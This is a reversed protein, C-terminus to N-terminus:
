GIKSYGFGFKNVFDHVHWVRLIRFYRGDETRRHSTRLRAILGDKALRFAHESQPMNNIIDNFTNVADALKDNQSSIQAVYSYSLDKYEPVYLGAGASYALGRSERMEQLVIANMWGGFYENYLQRSPEIASDYAEGRNAYQLMYLNKADYPALFVKTEMPQQQTYVRGAPVDKLTEPTNHEKDIVAALEEGTSPGYYLIRDMYGNLRRIRDVLAQPDMDKLEAKSLQDASTNKSGLIVYYWLRAFNERQSLKADERSKLLDTVLNGYAEKNVQANALFKELLAVAKPMYENLGSLMVYTRRSAHSVSFSCAMRYFEEKVEEPTMDGIGLYELYDTALGITKDQESGMDFLYALEFLDDFTNQKYLVPILGDKATFQTLDKSYDLFAPEIPAVASAAAQMEKLFTSTTDRNMLIPTIEPKAIKKENPDIGQRKYVLAYSADTLYRNAFDAVEQKTIKAMCEIATVEDSWNSGNIFSRVFMDARSENSQLQYLQELKLNNISAELMAEDFDGDCLKKVEALMLDKVEDLSQRTKPEEEMLLLSYDAQSYSFCSILLVKQKQALDLDFLGAQGNYILQSVVHLMEEERSAASPFRWPLTVSESEQGYVEGTVPETIPSETAFRLKPLEPNPQLNGFYKDIVAIAQDPDFDGSLCIAMNNPVYWQKYFNKINTISPNKLDDQTGFM